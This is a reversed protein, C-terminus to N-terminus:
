NDNELKQEITLAIAYLIRLSLAVGAGIFFYEIDTM